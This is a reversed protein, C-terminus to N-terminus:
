TRPRTSTRLVGLLMADAERLTIESKAGLFKTSLELANLRLRVRAGRVYDRLTITFLSHFHLNAHHSHM